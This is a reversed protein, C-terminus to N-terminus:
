VIKGRAQCFVRVRILGQNTNTNAMRYWSTYFIFKPIVSTLSQTENNHFWYSPYIKYKYSKPIQNHLFESGQYTQLQSVSITIPSGEFVGQKVGFMGMSVDTTVASNLFSPMVEFIVSVLRFQSYIDRYQSYDTSGSALSTFLDTATNASDVLTVYHSTEFNVVGYTDPDRYVPTKTTKRVRRRYTTTKTGANRM